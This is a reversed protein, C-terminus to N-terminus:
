LPTRRRARRSAGLSRRRASKAARRTSSLTRQGVCTTAIWGDGQPFVPLVINEGLLLYYPATKAANLWEPSVTSIEGTERLRELETRAADQDLGPRVRRRYQEAAHVSLTVAQTAPAPLSPMPPYPLEKASASRPTPAPAVDPAACTANASGM